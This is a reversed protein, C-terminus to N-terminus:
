VKEYSSLYIPKGNMRKKALEIDLGNDDEPNGEKFWICDGDENVMTLATVRCDIMNDRFICNHCKTDNKKHLLVEAEDLSIIRELKNM